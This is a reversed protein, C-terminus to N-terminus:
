CCPDFSTIIQNSALQSGDVTDNRCCKRRLVVGSQPPKAARADDERWAAPTNAGMSDGEREADAGDCQFIKGYHADAFWPPMKRTKVAQRIAAAWPRTQEYTLMSFPGAEGPRHCVQCNKELIPAVDRTFTPAGMLVAACWPMVVPLVAIFARRAM